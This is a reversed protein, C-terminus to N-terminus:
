GSQPPLLYRDAFEMSRTHNGGNELSSIFFTKQLNRGKIPLAVLSGAKLDTEVSKKLVISCGMGAAVASKVAQTSGMSVSATLQDANAEFAERLLSGTGTGQGGGIMPINSLDEMSLESNSTHPHNIPLIVVMEDKLWIRSTIGDDDPQWETIAIDILGDKLMQVLTPNDAQELQWHLSRNEELNSEALYPALYFETINASAGIRVVDEKVLKEMHDANRLLTRAIALVSKGKATALSGSRRREVLQVGLSEELKSIHQSLTPQALNLRKAAKQFSGTEVVTVFSKVFTLNLM